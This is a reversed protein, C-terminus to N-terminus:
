HTSPQPSSRFFPQRGFSREKMVVVVTCEGVHSRFCTDGILAPSDANSNRIIVVVAPRIDIDAVEALVPKIVVVMVAREGVNGLLGAHRQAVPRRSGRPSIVVAVPAEIEKHGAVNVVIHRVLRNRAVVARRQALEATHLHHASRAAQFTFGVM